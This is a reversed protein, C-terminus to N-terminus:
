DSAQDEVFGRRGNYRFVLKLLTANSIKRSLLSAARYAPLRGLGCRWELKAVGCRLWMMIGCGLLVGAAGPCCRVHREPLVGVGYRACGGDRIPDAVGWCQKPAEGWSGLFLFDARIAVKKRNPITAHRWFAIRLGLVCCFRGNEPRSSRLPTRLRLFNCLYRTKQKQLPSLRRLPASGAFFARFMMALLGFDSIFLRGSHPRRRFFWNPQFRRKRPVTSSTILM